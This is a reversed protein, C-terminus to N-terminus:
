ADYSRISAQQYKASQRMTFRNREILNPDTVGAASSSPLAYYQLLIFLVVHDLQLLLQQLLEVAVPVAILVLTLVVVARTQAASSRYSHRRFASVVAQDDLQLQLM